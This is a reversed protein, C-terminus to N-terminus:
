AKMYKYYPNLTPFKYSNILVEKKPQYMRFILYNGEQASPLWNGIM